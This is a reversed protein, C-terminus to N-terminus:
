ELVALGTESIWDGITSISDIEGNVGGDIEPSEAGGWVYLVYVVQSLGPFQPFCGPCWRVKFLVCVKAM